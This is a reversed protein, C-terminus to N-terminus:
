SRWGCSGRGRQCGKLYEELRVLGEHIKEHAKILVEDDKFGPMRTALEPFVHQEEITHHITLHQCLQLGTHLLTRLSLGPPRQGTSAVRYITNWTHRFHTHYADMIVALRNYVRFEDASLKPLEEAKKPDAPGAKELVPMPNQTQQPLADTM